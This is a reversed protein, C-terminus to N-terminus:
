SEWYKEPRAIGAQCEITYEAIDVGLRNLDAFWMGSPQKTLDLLKRDQLYELQQRLELATVNPYIGRMVDLLFVESSTYPRAKNLTNIIHWRMGERRYKENM